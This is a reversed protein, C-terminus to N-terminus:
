SVAQIPHIHENKLVCDDFMLIQSDSMGISDCQYARDGIKQKIIQPFNSVCGYEGQENM